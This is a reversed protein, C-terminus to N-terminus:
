GRLAEITAEIDPAVTFLNLLSADAFGNNVTHEVLAMLPDWYGEINAVIIPKEHLNLQAWTLVEFFEDLSGAGGPLLVAADSNIFMLKKRSHMDDTVIFQDLDRKGVEWDLLHQPIVGFTGGGAAQTADAVDGMLGVDGAGYVLRWKNVAIAAGLDQAAKAYAPSNGHRSGCFVCISKTTSM